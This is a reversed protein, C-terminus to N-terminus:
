FILLWVSFELNSGSKFIQLSRSSLWTTDITYLYMNNIYKSMNLLMGFWNAFYGSDSVSWKAQSTETTVNPARLWHGRRYACGHLVSHALAARTQRQQKLTPHSVQIHLGKLLIVLHMHCAKTELSIGAFQYHGKRSGNWRASLSM